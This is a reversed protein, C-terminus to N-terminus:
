VRSQSKAFTHLAEAFPSKSVTRHTTELCFMNHKLRHRVSIFEGFKAGLELRYLPFLKQFSPFGSGTICLFIFGIPWFLPKTELILVRGKLLKLLTALCLYNPPHMALGITTPLQFIFVESETAVSKAFLRRFNIPSMFPM